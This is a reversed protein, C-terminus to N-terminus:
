IKSLLHNICKQISEKPMESFDQSNSKDLWKQITEHSIKCLAILRKIEDIQEQTALQMPQADRELIKRGYRNAIEDYSFGFSEGDPLTEIRSKKIIAVREKGRKQIEFVLDIQKQHSDIGAKFEPDTDYIKKWFDQADIKYM